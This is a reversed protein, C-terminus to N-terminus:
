DKYEGYIWRHRNSITSFRYALGAAFFGEDQRNGIVGMGCSAHIMFHHAVHAFVGLDIHNYFVRYQYTGYTEIFSGLWDNLMFASQFGYIGKPDNSVGDYDIGVNALLSVQGAPNYEALLSVRPAVKDAPYDSSINPIKALAQLGLAFNNSPTNFINYKLGVAALNWGSVRSDVGNVLFKDDRMGGLAQVDLRHSIGFYLYGTTSQYKNYSDVADDSKESWGTEGTVGLQFCSEGVTRPTVSQGPRLARVEEAFQANATNVIFSLAPLVILYSIRRM